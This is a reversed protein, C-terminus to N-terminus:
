GLIAAAVAEPCALHVDHGAGAVEVIRAEPRVATMRELEQQPM